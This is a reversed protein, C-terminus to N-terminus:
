KLDEMYKDMNKYTRKIEQRKFILFKEKFGYYATKIKKLFTKEGKSYGRQAMKSKKGAFPKIIEEDDRYIGPSEYEKRNQETIIPALFIIENTPLIKNQKVRGKIKKSRYKKAAAYKKARHIKKRPRPSHIIKTKDNHKLSKAAILTRQKKITKPKKETETKKAIAIHIPKSHKSNKELSAIFKKENHKTMMFRNILLPRKNINEAVGPNITFAYKYGARKLEQLTKKYYAGYPYIFTDVKIKLNKELDKKSRYIERMFLYKSSKYLKKNLFRHNFGHSAISCGEDRLVKLQKWTLAYKTRSIAASYIGLLPKIGLPKMVEFYARYVSRNGDDDTILVNRRGRYNGRRYDDYTIFRYGAKKLGM